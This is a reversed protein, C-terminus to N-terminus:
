QSMQVTRTFSVGINNSPSADTALAQFTHWGSKLKCKWYFPAENLEGVLKGNCELRVNAIGMHDDARVQVICEGEPLIEVREIDVAPKMHDKSDSPHIELMLPESIELTVGDKQRFDAIPWSRVISRDERLAVVQEANRDFYRLTALVPVDGIPQLSFRKHSIQHGFLKKGEAVEVYLNLRERYTGFQELSITTSAQRGTLETERDLLPAGEAFSLRLTATSTEGYNALAVIREYNQIRGSPATIGRWGEPLTDSLDKVYPTMKEIRNHNVNPYVVIIVDTPVDDSVVHTDDVFAVQLVDSKDKYESKRAWNFGDIRSGVIRSSGRAIVASLIDNVSWWNSSTQPLSRLLDTGKGHACWYDSTLGECYYYHFPLGAWHYLCDDQARHFASVVCPGEQFSFFAHNRQIGAEEISGATSFGTDNRNWNYTLNRPKVPPRDLLEYERYYCFGVFILTVGIVIGATALGPIIKRGAWSSSQLLYSHYLWYCITMLVIFLVFLGLGGFTYVLIKARVRIRDIETFANPSICGTLGYPYCYVFPEPNSGLSLSPEIVSCLSGGHKSSSNSGWSFSVWKEATRHIFCNQDRYYYTGELLKWAREFPLPDPAGPYSRHLLYAMAAKAWSGRHYDYERVARSHRALLKAARYEFAAAVPDHQTVAQHCFALLGAGYYSDYEAGHPHALGGQILCLNKAWESVGTFGNGPYSFTEPVPRDTVFSLIDAYSRGEFLLDIGYWINAHGHHDSSYDEYLNWGQAWDTIPKGEAYTMTTFDRLTSVMDIGNGTIAERFRPAEPIDLCLYAAGVTSSFDQKVQDHNGGAGFEWSKVQREVAASGELVKKIYTRTEVDLQDWLLAAGITLYGIADIRRGLRRKWQKGSTFNKPTKSVYPYPKDVYASTLCCWRISKVAHDFLLQRPIDSYGFTQRDTETLLVAYALVVMGNGPILTLTAYSEDRWNCYKRFDFFGTGPANGSETWIPEFIDVVNDLVSIYLECIEKEAGTFAPQAELISQPEAPIASLIWALNM